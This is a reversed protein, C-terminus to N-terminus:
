VEPCSALPKYGDGCLVKYADDSCLFVGSSTSRKVTKPADRSNIARNKRRKAM